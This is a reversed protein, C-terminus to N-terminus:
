KTKEQLHEIQEISHELGYNVHCLADDVNLLVALVHRHQVYASINGPENVLDHLGYKPTGDVEGTDDVPKFLLNRM